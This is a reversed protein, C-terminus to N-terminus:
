LDAPFSLEVSTQELLVRTLARPFSEGSRTDTWGADGRKFHYGGSKAAVWIEQTPAHRNIIIKSDDNCTIELVGQNLEIDDVSNSADVIEVIRDFMADALVSFETASIM